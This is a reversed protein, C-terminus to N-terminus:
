RARYKGFSPKAVRGDRSMRSLHTRIASRDRRNTMQLIRCIELPTFIKEPNGRFISLIAASLAVLEGQAAGQQAPVAPSVAAIAAAAIRNVCDAIQREITAREGDLQALRQRLAVVEGALTVVQDLGSTVSMVM